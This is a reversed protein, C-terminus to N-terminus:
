LVRTKLGTEVRANFKMFLVYMVYFALLLCSEYLAIKQDLFFVYLMVLHFTYFTCDRALPWWTLVLLEKSFFACAGIVFLVNFVASGIITGFGVNSKAIFVGIIATFLEPASGGAAMFTAGAVDDEIEYTEVLVELAPVFFDDCVIAIATFTYLVGIVHLVIAGRKLSDADFVEDPYLTGDEALRRSHTQAVSSAGSSEVVGGLLALSAVLAVAVLFAGTRIVRHVRRASTTRGARGLRLM